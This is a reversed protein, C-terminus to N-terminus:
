CTLILCHRTSSQHFRALFHLAPSVCSRRHRGPSPELCGSPLLITAAALTPSPSARCRTQPRVNYCSPLCPLCLLLLEARRGATRPQRLFLIARAPTCCWVNGINTTQLRRGIVAPMRRVAQTTRLREAFPQQALGTGGISRAHRSALPRKPTASGQAMRARQELYGGELVGLM